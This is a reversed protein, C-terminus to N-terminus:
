RNTDLLRALLKSGADVVGPQGIAASVAGSPRAAAFEPDNAYLHAIRRTLRGERTDTAVLIV